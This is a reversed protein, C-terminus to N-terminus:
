AYSYLLGHISIGPGELAKQRTIFTVIETAESFEFVNLSENCPPSYAVRIVLWFLCLALVDRSVVPLTIRIINWNVHM